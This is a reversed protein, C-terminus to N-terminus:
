EESHIASHETCWDLIIKKLRTNCFRITLTGFNSKHKYTGRRAPHVYPQSFQDRDIGLEDAWYSIAEQVNCDSHLHLEAVLRTPDIGCFRKLFLIFTRHISAESNALAVNFGTKAGEGMYLGIGVGFLKWEEATEPMHIVFPDGAPNRYVYTADSWTRRAFGYQQMWYAVKNISCGFHEAVQQMSFKSGYYLQELESRPLPQGRMQNFQSLNM